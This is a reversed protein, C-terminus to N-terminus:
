NSPHYMKLTESLSQIAYYLRSKVTGKPIQLIEAIENVSLEEQYRLTFAARQPHPLRRLAQQLHTEFLAKDLPLESEYFPTEARQEAQYKEEVELHRYENKCLNYAISFAWSSFSYEAAFRDSKEYIRLFLEQTFDEAKAPDYELMRLFFGQFRRVHRYYLDEFARQDGRATKQMLEEDTCSM